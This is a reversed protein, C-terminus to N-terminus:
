NERGKEVLADRLEDVERQVQKISEKTASVNRLEDLEKKLAEM